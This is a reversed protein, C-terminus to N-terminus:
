INYKNSNLLIEFNNTNLKTNRDFKFSFDYDNEYMLEMTISFYKILTDNITYKPNYVNFTLVKAITHIFIHSILETFDSNSNEYLSIKNNNSIYVSYQHHKDDVKKIIKNLFKVISKNDITYNNQEYAKIYRM